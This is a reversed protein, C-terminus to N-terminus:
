LTTPTISKDTRINLIMKMTNNNNNNNVKLFSLIAKQFIQNAVFPDVAAFIDDLLYLDRDQYLARALALRM